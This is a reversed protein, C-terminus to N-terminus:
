GRRGRIDSIERKAIKKLAGEDRGGQTPTNGDLVM